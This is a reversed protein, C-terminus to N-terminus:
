AIQAVLFSLFITRKAGDRWLCSQPAGKKFELMRFM